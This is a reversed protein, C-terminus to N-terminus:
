REECLYLKSDSPPLLVPVPLAEGASVCVEVDEEVWDWEAALWLRLFIRLDEELGERCELALALVLVVASICMCM